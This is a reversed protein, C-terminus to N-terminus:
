GTWCALSVTLEPPFAVHTGGLGEPVRHTFTATYTEDGPLTDEWETIGDTPQSTILLFTGVYKGGASPTYGTTDMAMVTYQHEPLFLDDLLGRLTETLEMFGYPLAGLRLFALEISLLELVTHNYLENVTNYSGPPESVSAVPVTAELWRSLGLSAYHINYENHQITSRSEVSFSYAWTGVLAVTLILVLFVADLLSSVCRRDRRAMCLPRRM